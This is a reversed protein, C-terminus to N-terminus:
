PLGEPHQQSDHLRSAGEMICATVEPDQSPDFCESIRQVTLAKNECGTLRVFLQRVLDLRQPQLPPVLGGLFENYTIRNDLNKDFFRFIKEFEIKSLTLGAEKLVWVFEDRSLFGSKDKDNRTFIVRLKGLEFHGRKKLETKIKEVIPDPTKRYITYTPNLNPPIGVGLDKFYDCLESYILKDSNGSFKHFLGLLEEDSFCFGMQVLTEKFQKFDVFGLGFKDIQGFRRKLTIGENENGITL